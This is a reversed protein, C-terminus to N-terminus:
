DVDGVKILVLIKKRDIKRIKKKRKLLIFLILNFLNGKGIFIMLIVYDGLGM